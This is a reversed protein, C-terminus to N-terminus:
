SNQKNEYAYFKELLNQFTKILLSFKATLLPKRAVMIISTGPKIYNKSLRIVERMRRKARNRLVSNGIKKSAVVAIKKVNTGNYALFIVFFNTVYRYANKYLYTFEQSKNM